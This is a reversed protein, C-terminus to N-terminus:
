GLLMPLWPELQAWEEGSAQGAAARFALARVQAATAGSVGLRRATAAPGEGSAVWLRLAESNISRPDDSADALAPPLTEASGPAALPRPAYANMPAPNLRLWRLGVRIWVLVAVVVIVAWALALILVFVGFAGVGYSPGTFVRTVNAFRQSVRCSGFPHTCTATRTLTAKLRSGLHATSRSEPPWPPRPVRVGPPRLATGSDTQHAALRPEGPRTSGRSSSSLFPVCMEHVM